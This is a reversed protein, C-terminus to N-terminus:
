PSKRRTPRGGKPQGSGSARQRAKKKPVGWSDFEGSLPSRSDKLAVRLTNEDVWAWSRGKAIHNIASVSCGFSKAVSSAPINKKLLSRIEVVSDKDISNGRRPLGSRMRGKNVADRMNDYHTGLVLHDPNVCKRNDCLHMVYMGIPIDRRNHMKWSIRHSHEM